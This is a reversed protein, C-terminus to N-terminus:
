SPPKLNQLDSIIGAYEEEWDEIQQLQDIASDINSRWAHVPRDLMSLMSNAARSFVRLFNQASRPARSIAREFESVYSRGDDVRRALPDFLNRQSNVYQRATAARENLALANSREPASRFDSAAERLPEINRVLQAIDDELRSAIDAVDRVTAVARGTVPDIDKILSLPTVEGLFRGSVVPEELTQIAQRVPQVEAAVNQAIPQVRQYVASIGESQDLINASVQQLNRQHDTQFAIVDSLLRAVSSLQVDIANMDGIMQEYLRVRMAEAEGELTGTQQANELDAVAEKVTEGERVVQNKLDQFEEMNTDTATTSAVSQVESTASERVGLFFEHDNRVAEIARNALHLREEQNDRINAATIRVSETSSSFFIRSSLSNDLADVPGDLQDLYQTVTDKYETLDEYSIQGADSWIDNDASAINSIIAEAESAHGQHTHYTIGFWTALSLIVV